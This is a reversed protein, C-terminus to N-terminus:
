FIKRAEMYLSNPKYEEGQNNLDLGYRGWDAIDSTLFSHVKIEQFSADLLLNKLNFQDYMWQHTEGRKRADGFFLNEIKRPFKKQKSTGSCERRVSQEIIDAVFNDHLIRSNNCEFCKNYNKIYESCLYSFNPVVIRIIGQPKLVRFIENLFRPVDQRDIHELVHSSYVADISCDKFPIGKSLDHSKINSPLEKYTKRRKENLFFLLFSPLKIKKLRLMLSWDINVVDASNSTKAGCGLNLIKM